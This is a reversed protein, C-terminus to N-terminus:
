LKSCVEMCVDGYFCLFDKVRGWVVVVKRRKRGGLRSVAEGLRVM